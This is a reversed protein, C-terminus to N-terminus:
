CVTKGIQTANIGVCLFNVGKVGNCVLPDCAWEKSLRPPEAATRKWGIPPLPMVARLLLVARQRRKLTPHPHWRANEPLM